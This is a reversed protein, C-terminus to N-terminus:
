HRGPRECDLVPTPSCRGQIDLLEGLPEFLLFPTSISCAIPSYSMVLCVAALRHPFFGEHDKIVTLHQTREHSNNTDNIGMLLGLPWSGTWM